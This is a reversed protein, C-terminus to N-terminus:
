SDLPSRVANAGRRMVHTYIQTTSVDKHGLLEQVTRIDYDREVALRHQERVRELRLRLPDVLGSSLMTVRHKAGKGDRVLIQLLSGPVARVEAESLVVPLRRSPKARVVGDLWPLDVQLVQKYLLLLASGAQSQPSASVRRNVALHTLFARLEAAGMQAPHRKGHFLIFHRIWLTYAQETRYSHHLLRPRARVQELRKPQADM